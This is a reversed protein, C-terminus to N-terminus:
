KRVRCPLLALRLKCKCPFSALGRSWLLIDGKAAMSHGGGLRQQQGSATNTSKKGGEGSLHPRARRRFTCCDQAGTASPTLPTQLGAADADPGDPGQQLLCDQMFSLFHTSCQSVTTARMILKLHIKQRRLMSISKHAMVSIFRVLSAARPPPPLLAKAVGAAIRGIQFVATCTLTFWEADPGQDGSLRSILVHM